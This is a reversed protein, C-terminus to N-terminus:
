TLFFLTCKIHEPTVCCMVDDPLNRCGTAIGGYVTDSVPVLGKKICKDKIGCYGIADAVRCKTESCCETGDVNECELGGNNTGTPTLDCTERPVCTGTSPEIEVVQEPASNKYDNARKTEGGMCIHEDSEIAEHVEDMREEENELEEIQEKPSTPKKKTIPDEEQIDNEPLNEDNSQTDVPKETTKEEEEEEECQCRKADDPSIKFSSACVTECPIECTCHSYDKLMKFGGSVVAGTISCVEDLSTMGMGEDNIPDEYDCSPCCLTCGAECEGCDMNVTGVKIYGLDNEGFPAPVTTVGKEMADPDHTCEHSCVSICLREPPEKEKKTSEILAKDEENPCGCTVRCEHVSNAENCQEQAKTPDEQLNEKEKPIQELAKDNEINELANKEISGPDYANETEEGEIAIQKPAKNDESEELEETKKDELANERKSGSDSVNETNLPDLTEEMAIFSVFDSINNELEMNDNGESSKVETDNSGKSSKVETDNSGESHVVENKTGIGSSALISGAKENLDDFIDPELLDPICLKACVREFETSEDEPNLKENQDEVNNLESAEGEYGEQQQEEIPPAELSRLSIFEVVPATDDSTEVGKSVEQSGEKSVEGLENDDPIDDTIIDDNCSQEPVDHLMCIPLNEVVKRYMVDEESPQLACTECFSERGDPYRTMTTLCLIHAANSSYTKKRYLYVHKQHTRQGNEDTPLTDLWCPGDNNEAKEAEPGTCNNFTEVQLEICPAGCIMVQDVDEISSTMFDGQITVRVGGKNPGKTPTICTPKPECSGTQQFGPPIEAKRYDRLQEPPLIDESTLAEPEKKDCCSGDNGAFCGQTEDENCCAGPLCTTRLPLPPLVEGSTRANEQDLPLENGEYWGNSIHGAHQLDWNPLPKVFAAQPYKETFATPSEAEMGTTTITFTLMAIAHILTISYTM